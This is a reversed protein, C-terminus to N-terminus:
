SRKARERMWRKWIEHRGMPPSNFVLNGNLVAFLVVLLAAAPISLLIIWLTM